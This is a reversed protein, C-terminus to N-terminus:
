EGSRESRESGVGRGGWEEGEGSREEGSRESGVGRVGRAGWEEGEGSRERVM